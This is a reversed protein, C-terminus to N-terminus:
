HVKPKVTLCSQRFILGANIVFLLTHPHPRCCYVTPFLPPPRPYHHEKQEKRKRNSGDNPVCLRWGWCSVRCLLDCFSFFRGSIGRRDENLRLSPFDQELFFSMRWQRRRRHHLHHGGENDHFFNTVTREM